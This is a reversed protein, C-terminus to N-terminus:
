SGITDCYIHGSSVWLERRTAAIGCLQGANGSVLPFTRIIKETRPDIKTVSHDNVTWVGGAGVAVADAAMASLDISRVVRLTIPNIKWLRNGSTGQTLAWVAGDGVAISVPGWNAGHKRLVIKAPKSHGARFAEIRSDDPQGYTSEGAGYTGIWVTDYGYAVATASEDLHLVSVEDTKVNVVAVRNDGVLPGHFGVVVWVHGGGIAEFGAM